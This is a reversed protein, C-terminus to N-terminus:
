VVTVLSRRNALMVAGVGDSIGVRRKAVFGESLM